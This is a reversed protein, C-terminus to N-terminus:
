AMRLLVTLISSIWGPFKGGDGGTVEFNYYKTQDNICKCGVVSGESRIKKCGGCDKIASTCKWDGERAVNTGTINLKTIGGALVTKNLILGITINQTSSHMSVTVYAEVKSDLPNPDDISIGAFVFDQKFQESMAPAVNAAFARAFQMTDFKLVYAGSGSRSALEHSQSYACVFLCLSFVSTLLQKM